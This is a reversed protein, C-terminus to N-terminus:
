SVDGLPDGEPESLIKRAWDPKVSRCYFHQTGGRVRKTRILKAAGCNALVRVHYSLHTLSEDLSAALDRPSVPEAEGDEPMARLIRRRLPHCLAALLAHNDTRDPGAV